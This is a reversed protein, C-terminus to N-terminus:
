DRLPTLIFTPREKCINTKIKVRISSYVEALIFQENSFRCDLKIGQLIIGMSLSFSKFPSIIMYFAM